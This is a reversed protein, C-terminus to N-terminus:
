RRRGSWVAALRRGAALRARGEQHRRPFRRDRADGRRARCLGRILGPPAPLEDLAVNGLQILNVSATNPKAAGYVTLSVQFGSKQFSASSADPTRSSGPLEQWGGSTFQKVYFDFVELVSGPANYNMGAVQRGPEESGPVLPFTSLDLVKQAEAVTAPLAPGPTDANISATAAAQRVPLTEASPVSEPPPSSCSLTWPLTLVPGLLLM